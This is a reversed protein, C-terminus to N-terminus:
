YRSVVVVVIIQPTFQCAMWSATSYITMIQFSTPLHRKAISDNFRLVIKVTITIINMAVFHSANNKQGTVGIDKERGVAKGDTAPRDSSVYVIGGFILVNYLKVPVRASSPNM